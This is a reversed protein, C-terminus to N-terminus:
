LSGDTSLKDIGFLLTPIGIFALVVFSLFDEEAIESLEATDTFSVLFSLATLSLILGLTLPLARIFFGLSNKM